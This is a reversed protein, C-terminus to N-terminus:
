RHFRREPPLPALGPGDAMREPDSRIEVLMYWIEHEARMAAIMDEKTALESTMTEIANYLTKFEDNSLTVPMAEVEGDIMM